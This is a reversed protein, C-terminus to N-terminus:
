RRPGLGQQERLRENEEEMLRLRRYGQRMVENFLAQERANFRKARKTKKKPKTM